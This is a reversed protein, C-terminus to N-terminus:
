TSSLGSHSSTNTVCSQGLQVTTDVGGTACSAPDALPPTGLIHLSPTMTTSPM